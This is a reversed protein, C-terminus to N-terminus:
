ILRRWDAEDFKALAADVKTKTQTAASAFESKETRGVTAYEATAPMSAVEGIFGRLDKLEDALRKDEPKAPDLVKSALDNAYSLWSRIFDQPTMRRGLKHDFFHVADQIRPTYYLKRNTM